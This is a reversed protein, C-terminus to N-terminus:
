RIFAGLCNESIGTLKIVFEILIPLFVLVAILIFRTITAKFADKMTKDEGSFLVKLFEIVTLITVLLPIAIKLIKYLNKIIPFVKGGDEEKKFIGCVAEYIAYTKDRYSTAGDGIVMASYNNEDEQKNDIFDSLNATSGDESVVLKCKTSGPYNKLALKTSLNCEVKNESVDDYKVESLDVDGTCHSVKSIDVSFTKKATDIKIYFPDDTYKNYACTIEKTESIGKQVSMTTWSNHDGIKVKGCVTTPNSNIDFSSYNKLSNDYDITSNKGSFYSNGNFSYYNNSTKIFIYGPRGRNSGIYNTGCVASNVKNLTQVTKGKGFDENSFRGDSTRYIVSPCYTLLGNQSRKGISGLEFHSTIDEISSSTLKYFAISYDAEQRLMYEGSISSASYICYRATANSTEKEVGDGTTEKSNLIYKNDRSSDYNTGFQTWYGGSKNIYYINSPCPDGKENNGIAKDSGRLISFHLDEKTSSAKEDVPMANGDRVKRLSFFSLNEGLSLPQQILQWMINSGEKTYTCYRTNLQILKYSSYNKKPLTAVWKTKGLYVNDPCKETNGFDILDDNYVVKVPYNFYKGDSSLGEQVTGYGYWKNAIKKFALIRGETNEDEYYCNFNEDALVNSKLGFMLLFAFLVYFIKRKKM